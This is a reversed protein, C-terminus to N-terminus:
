RVPAAMFRELSSMLEIAEEGSYESGTVLRDLEERLGKFSPGEYVGLPTNFSDPKVLTLRFVGSTGECWHLGIHILDQISTYVGTVNSRGDTDVQEAVWYLCRFMMM